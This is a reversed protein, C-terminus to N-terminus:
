LPQIIVYCGVQKNFFIIETKGSKKAKEMIREKIKMHIQM